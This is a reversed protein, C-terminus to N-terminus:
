RVFEISSMINAPDPVYTDSNADFAAGTYLCTGADVLGTLKPDAPTDCLDDGTNPCNSGNVLEDTLVANSKGHTHYLSLYHGMEHSMTSSNTACSNTMIIRDPGGPFYAYGCLPGSADTVTNFFYINIVNTVDNATGIASEDNSDFDYYSDNDIYNPSNCAFFEINANIYYANM